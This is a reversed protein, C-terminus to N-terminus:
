RVVVKMTLTGEEGPMIKKTIKWRVLSPAGADASSSPKRDITVVADKSEVSKEILMVGDAVPNTIEADQALANGINCYSITYTVTDGPVTNIPSATNFIVLEPKAEKSDIRSAMRAAQESAKDADRVTTGVTEFSFLTAWTKAKAAVNLAQVSVQQIDGSRPAVDVNVANLSTMIIGPYTASGNEMRSAFFGASGVKQASGDTKLRLVANIQSDKAMRVKYTIVVKKGLPASDDNVSETTVQLELMDAGAGFQYTAVNKAGKNQVETKSAGAFDAATINKIVAKTGADAIELVVDSLANENQAYFLGFGKAGKATKAFSATVFNVAGGEKKPSVAATITYDGMKLQSTQAQLQSDSIVVFWVAILSLIYKM